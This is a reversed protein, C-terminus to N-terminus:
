PLAELRKAAIECYREEIEIGIARRGLEAAAVLTGGSGVFPDLILDGPRSFKETLQRLLAIPKQSPHGTFVDRTFSAAVRSNILYHRFVKFNRHGHREFIREYESGCGTKKDWIHIATHSLPFDAKASWFVFQRCLLGELIATGTQVYETTLWDPYPPDTLVLDVSCKLLPLAERCDAHYLTIGRSKYYPKM